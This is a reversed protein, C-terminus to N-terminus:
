GGGLKIKAILSTYILQFIKEKNKNADIIIFNNNRAVENFFAIVKNYYDRNINKDFDQTMRSYMLDIDGNIYFFMDPKPLLKIPLFAKEGFLDYLFQIFYRDCIVINYRQHISKLYYCSILVYLFGFLSIPMRKLIRIANLDKSDAKKSTTSRRPSFITSGKLIDCIRNPLLDILIYIPRVYIARYGDANLREVLLRSQTSKGCGDVGVIAIAVM